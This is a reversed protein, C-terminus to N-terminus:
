QKIQQRAGYKDLRFENGNEILLGESDGKAHRTDIGIVKKDYFYSVDRVVSHGVVIRKVAYKELTIDVEEKTTTEKIYGRYWFPSAEGNYLANVLGNNSQVALEGNYYYKRAVRNIKKISPGLANIEESVGGHMFLYNGIKEVINKTQLWRGLETNVTYWDKYNEKILYTNHFYKHRVYRFDDNMNMIEHNGLIFHVYGGSKVAEQELHYIFWLCETVNLGRDFFDGVLVLHGNGFIWQNENNIVGNNILFDRLVSFNGEIDSIAIIKESEPYKSQEIELANKIKTRFFLSDNIFCNIPRGKISGFVTDISGYAATDKRYVQKIFTTDNKYFIHPGDFDAVSEDKITSSNYNNQLSSTSESSTKASILVGGLVLWLILKNGFRM